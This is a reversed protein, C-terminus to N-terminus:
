FSFSFAGLSSDSFSDSCLHTTFNGILKCIVEGLFHLLCIFQVLIFDILEFSLKLFNGVQIARQVHWPWHSLGLDLYRTYIESRSGIQEPILATWHNSHSLLLVAILVIHKM